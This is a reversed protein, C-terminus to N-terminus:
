QKVLIDQTAQSQAVALPSFSNVAASTNDADVYAFKHSVQTVRTLSFKFRGLAERGPLLEASEANLESVDLM